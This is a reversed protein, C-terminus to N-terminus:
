VRRPAVRRQVDSITSSFLLIWSIKRYLIIIIIIIFLVNLKWANENIFTSIENVNEM